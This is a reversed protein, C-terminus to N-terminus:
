VINRAIFQYQEQIPLGNIVIEQGWGTIHVDELKRITHNLSNDGIYDGFAIYINFGNLVPDDPRRNQTVDWGKKITGQAQDSGGWIYDEFSEFVDEAEGLSSNNPNRGGGPFGTLMNHAQEQQVILKDAVLSAIAQTRLMTFYKDENDNHQIIKEVNNRQIEDTDKFPNLPISKGTLRRYENLALWLYGAEKFNITFSGQIILQGKSVTRYYTDAYGYIPQKPQQVAFSLSTVEDILISGIYIAVQSGSNHSVINGILFREYKPVTFDYVVTDETLTVMKKSHVICSTDIPTEPLIIKKYHNLGWKSNHPVLECYKLCQNWSGFLREVVDQSIGTKIRFKNLSIPYNAKVLQTIEEKTYKNNRFDSQTYDTIHKLHKWGPLYKGIKTIFIGLNEKGYIKLIFQELENDKNKPAFSLKTNIGLTSLLIQLSNILAKSTLKISVCRDSATGDGEFLGAIYAAKEEKTSTFICSPTRKENCHGLAGLEKFFLVMAKSYIGVVMRMYKPRKSVTPMFTIKDSLTLLSNVIRSAFIDEELHLAYELRWKGNNSNGLGEQHSGEASYAGLAYALGIGIPRDSPLINQEIHWLKDKSQINGAAQVNKNELFLKHGTTLSLFGSRTNLHVIQSDKKVVSSTCIADTWILNNNDDVTQVKDGQKFESPKIQFISDQRKVLLYNDDTLCFYEVNYIGPRLSDNNQVM